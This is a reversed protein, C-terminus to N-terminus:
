LRKGLKEFPKNVSMNLINLNAKIDGMDKNVAARFENETIVKEKTDFYRNILMEAKSFFLRGLSFTSIAVLIWFDVMGFSFISAKFLYLTFLVYPDTITSFSNSVKM